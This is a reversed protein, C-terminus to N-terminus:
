QVFANDRSDRLGVDDAKEAVVALEAHNLGSTSHKLDDVLFNVFALAVDKTVLTNAGQAAIARATLAEAIQGRHTEAATM